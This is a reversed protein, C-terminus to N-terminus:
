GLIRHEHGYTHIIDPSGLLAGSRGIKHVMLGGYMVLLRGDFANQCGCIVRAQLSSNDFKRVMSLGSVFLYRYYAGQSRSHSGLLGLAEHFLM